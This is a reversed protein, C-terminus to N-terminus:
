FKMGVGFTVRNENAKVRGVNDFDEHGFDTYRYEVRGFINDTLKNRYNNLTTTLITDFNSNGAM